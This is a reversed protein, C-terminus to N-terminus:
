ANSNAPLYFSSELDKNKERILEVIRDLLDGVGAGNEASVPYPQGLELKGWEPEFATNRITPNDAKNGVLIVPKGSKKLKKAITREQPLLGTQLDTILLILHAEMIAREAQKDINVEIENQRLVDLGGTDVFTLETNQWVTTGYNRDRTTGSVPSVLAKPQSLIKNFLTSKGANARGILAVIPKM